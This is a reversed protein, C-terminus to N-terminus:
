QPSHVTLCINVYVNTTNLEVNIVNRISIHTFLYSLILIKKTQPLIIIIATM